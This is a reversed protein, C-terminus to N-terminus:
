RRKLKVIKIKGDSLLKTLSSQLVEASVAPMKKLLIADTFLIETNKNKIPLKSCVFFIIDDASPYGELEKEIGLIYKIQIKDNDLSM